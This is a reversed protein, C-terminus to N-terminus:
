TIKKNLKSKRGKQKNLRYVHTSHPPLNHIVLTDRSTIKDMKEGSWCDLRTYKRGLELADFANYPIEINQKQEGNLNTISIAIDGGELDKQLVLINETDIVPQACQGLRDQNLTILHPTTIIKLDEAYYPNATGTVGPKGGLNTIDFSLTLPSSWMCWLAFQTRYEDQSMGKGDTGANSSKGTGHIGCMLMDADNWRNVGNYQWITKFVKINDLVGGRYTKNEWCDRTDATVRWCSGGTQSAWKWPSRDGWECVYYLFNHKRHKLLADGMDKYAKFAEDVGNGPNNCYDYKLLDFGWNIFDLADTEEHHLSGPQAGSCTYTGADSYIGIKLGKAHVKDALEKMGNPFKKKDYQLHGNADRDHMAWRDDICLYTYGADRLGYDVLAEAIAIINKDSINEEFVNWTLIGMFPQPQDLNKSCTLTIEHESHTGDKGVLVTYRYVGERKLTGEVLKRRENWTLGEPLGRVALTADDDQAKIKQMFPVGPIAFVMTACDLQCVESPPNGAKTQRSIGHTVIQGAHIQFVSFLAFYFFTLFIKKM